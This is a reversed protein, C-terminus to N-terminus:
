AALRPAPAAEEKLALQPADEQLNRQPHLVQVAM